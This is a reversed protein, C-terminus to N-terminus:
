EIIKYTNKELVIISDINMEKADKPSTIVPMGLYATIAILGNPGLFYNDGKYLKFIECNKSVLLCYQKKKGSTIRNIKNLTKYFRNKVVQKNGEKRRQNQEIM